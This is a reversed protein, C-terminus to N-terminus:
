KLGLKKKTAHYEYFSWAIALFIVIGRSVHYRQTIPEVTARIMTKDTTKLSEILTQIQVAEAIFLVLCAVLGLIISWYIKPNTEVIRTLNLFFAQM